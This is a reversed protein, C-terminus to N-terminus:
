RRPGPRASRRRGSRDAQGPLRRGLDAGQLVWREVWAAQRDLFHELSMHGAAIQDLAQEWLATTAPDALAPPVAEILTHALASATLSQRRKILYGRELLGKIIGARTAETGLGSSAKLTRRLRPDAVQQGVQKMARLLEGETFAKPPRTQRERPQAELVQCTDGPALPPLPQAEDHGADEDRDGEAAPTVALTWGAQLTRRGTALLQITGCALSVRTRQWEHPPLFQALYRGRVLAYVAREDATLRALDVRQRTPIIGHHAAVRADDWARSRRQPDLQGLLPALAPDGQRLAELVVPAEARQSEPLYGCATRPYTIAKHREYLAQAIDLTAQVGLGLRRSCLTQLTGLDFPLPPPQHQRESDVQCVRVDGQQLLQQAAQRALQPDLCHGDADLQEAPPQWRAQFHQGAHVLRVEVPWHTKPRFGAIARDREVVLRLTPTQVRGVSLVGDHGARRGLLTFLRSLNMGVLWDARSRALAALYLPYTAEGPKLATLARRISSDDLASLWLRQVPGHYHCHELVERAILEGERDADTAIVLLRTEALLRTIVRLQAASRPKVEVRWASPIIPLDDLSWRRYRADYAEPPATDLLHGFCWTVALGPGRLCGDARQGAGLVRAIDRAQSPKECLFLRM